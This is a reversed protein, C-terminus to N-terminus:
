ALDSYGRGAGGNYVWAIEANTLTRGIFIFAQNIGGGFKNAQNRANFGVFFPWGWDTIGGTTASTERAHGDVAIWTVANAPDKGGVVLHWAGDNIPHASVVHGNGSISQWVEFSARAGITPRGANNVLLGYSQSDFSPTDFKGMVVGDQVFKLWCGRTFEGASGAELDGGISHQLYQTGGDLSLASGVVGAQNGPSGTPAQDYHHVHSDLRTGTAEGLAWWASLNTKGPNTGAQAGGLVRGGMIHAVPMRM